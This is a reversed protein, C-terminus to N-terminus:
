SSWQAYSLRIGLLSWPVQSSSPTAFQKAVFGPTKRATRLGLRRFTVNAKSYTLRAWAPTFSVQNARRLANALFFGVRGPSVAGVRGVIMTLKGQPITTTLDHLFTADKYGFSAHSLVLTPDSSIEGPPRPLLRNVKRPNRKRSSSSSSANSPQRTETLERRSSSHKLGVPGLRSWPRTVKGAAFLKDALHESVTSRVCMSFLPTSLTVLVALVSFM